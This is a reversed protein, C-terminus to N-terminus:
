TRNRSSLLEGSNRAYWPYIVQRRHRRHCRARLFFKSILSGILMSLCRTVRLLTVIKGSM